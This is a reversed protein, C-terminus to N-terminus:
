FLTKQRALTFERENFAITGDPYMKPVAGGKLKAGAYFENKTLEKLMEPSAGSVVWRWGNELNLGYCKQKLFVSQTFRKATYCGMKNGLLSELYGNYGKIFISDTDGYIYDNIGAIRIDRALTLRGFSNIFMAVPLYGSEGKYELELRKYRGDEIVTERRYANAGFQGTISNILYKAVIGLANNKNDEKIKFLRKAYESLQPVAKKKAVYVYDFIFEDVDYNERLAQLDNSDLMFDVDGMFNIKTLYNTQTRSNIIQICPVGGPALTASLEVVKYICYYNNYFEDVGMEGRKKYYEEPTRKYLQGFPLKQVTYIWPYFSKIDLCWGSGTYDCTKEPMYNLGSRYVKSTRVDDMIERPLEPFDERFKLRGFECCGDGYISYLLQRAYGAVTSAKLETGDAIRKVVDNFKNYCVECAQAIVVDSAKDELEVGAFAKLADAISTKLIGSLDKIYASTGAVNLQVCIWAGASDVVIRFTQGKKADKSAKFGRKEAEAVFFRGWASLNLIFVDSRSDLSKFMEFLENIGNGTIEVGNGVLAWTTVAGGGLRDADFVSRCSLSLFYKAPALRNERKRRRYQRKYEKMYERRDTM